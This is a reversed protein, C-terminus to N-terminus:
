GEGGPSPLFYHEQLALQHVYLSIPPGQKCYVMVGENIIPVAQNNRGTVVSFEQRSVLDYGHM